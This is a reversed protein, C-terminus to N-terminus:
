YNCIGTGGCMFCWTPTPVQVPILIPNGFSDTGEYKQGWKWGTYYGTGNCKSCRRKTNNQEYNNHYIPSINPSSRSTVGSDIRQIEIPVPAEINTIQAETFRFLGDTTECYIYGNEFWTKIAKWKRGDQLFVTPSVHNYKTKLTRIAEDSVKSKTENIIKEINNKDLCLTAGYKQILIKGDQEWYTETTYIKGNKMHIEHAYVYFSFFLLILCIITKAYQM